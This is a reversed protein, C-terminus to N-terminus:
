AETAAGPAALRGVLERYLEVLRDVHDEVLFDRAVIARGEAGLREALHEDTLLRVLADSAAVVDGYPVVAGAVDGVVPAIAVRDTVVAPLEHAWAEVTAMSLQEYLSPVFMVDASGYAAALTEEPCWGTAVVGPRGSLLEDSGGGVALLVAEPLEKRVLRMAELAFGIGKRRPSHAAVLLVLPVPGVGLLERAASRAAGRLRPSTSTVPCPLVEVRRAGHATFFAGEAATAAVVVDPVGAARPVLRDFLVMARLPGSGQWSRPRGPHFVPTWVLPAGALRAAALGGFSSPSPMSGWVHVVTPERAEGAAAADPGPRAAFARRLGPAGGVIEAEIGREVLGTALMEAHSAIGGRQGLGPQVIVIRMARARRPSPRRAVRRDGRGSARDLEPRGAGPDLGALGGARGLGGRRGAGLGRRPRGRRPGRSRAPPLAGRGAGVGGAGGGLAASWRRRGKTAALAAFQANRARARATGTVLPTRELEDLVVERVREFGGDPRGPDAADALDPDLGIAELEDFTSAYRGRRLLRVQGVYLLAKREARLRAPSTGTAAELLAQVASCLYSAAARDSIAAPPRRDLQFGPPDFLVDAEYRLKAVFLSGAPHALRWSPLPNVSCRVGLEQELSAAAAALPRLAPGIRWLPLVVTVDVDSDATAGGVARSGSVLVPVDGCASRVADVVLRRWGAVLGADRDTAM